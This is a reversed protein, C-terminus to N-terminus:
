ETDGVVTEAPVGVAEVRVTWLKRKGRPGQKAWSIIQVRNGAALVQQVAPLGALKTRRAAHSAGATCQIFLAGPQGDLAVLDAFGFLDKRINVRPIWREVVDVLHGAQRLWALTRATPTM